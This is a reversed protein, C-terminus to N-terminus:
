NKNREIREAVTAKIAENWEDGLDGKKNVTKGEGSSYGSLGQSLRAQRMEAIKIDIDATTADNPILQKLTSIDYPDFGKAKEKIYTEKVMKLQVQKQAETSATVTTELKAITERMEALIKANPDNIDETDAGGATDGATAGATDGDTIKDKTTKTEFTRIKDFLSQLIKNEGKAALDKLEDETYDRISKHNTTFTKVNDVWKNLAEDTEFNIGTSLSEDIGETTLKNQIQETTLM